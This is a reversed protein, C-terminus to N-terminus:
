DAEEGDIEFRVTVQAGPEAGLAYRLAEIIRPANTGLLWKSCTCMPCDMPLTKDSDLRLSVENGCHGCEVRVALIDPVKFIIRTQKVMAAM